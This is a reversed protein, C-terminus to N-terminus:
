KGINGGMRDTAKEKNRDTSVTVRMAAIAYTLSQICLECPERGLVGLHPLAKEPGQLGLVLATGRHISNFSVVAQAEAAAHNEGLGLM